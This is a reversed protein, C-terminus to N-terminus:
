WNSDFTVPPLTGRSNQGAIWFPKPLQMPLFAHEGAERQEIDLNGQVIPGEVRNVGRCHREFGGGPAGVTLGDGLRDGCSISGIM